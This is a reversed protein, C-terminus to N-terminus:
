RLRTDWLALTSHQVVYGHGWVPQIQVIHIRNTTIRRWTGRLTKETSRRKADMCCLAIWVGSAKLSVRELASWSLERQVEAIDCKNPCPLPYKACEAFKKMLLSSVVTSVPSSESSVHNQLTLLWVTGKSPCVVGRPAHSLLTSVTMWIVVWVVWSM